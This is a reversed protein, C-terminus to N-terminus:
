AAPPPPAKTPDQNTPNVAPNQPNPAGGPVNDPPPAPENEAIQADTLKDLGLVRDRIEEPTVVVGGARQNLGAWATAVAAQDTQTLSTIDPWRVTYDDAPEPLAGADILRDVFTRVLPTGYEDRRSEVRENWNEKDQTSALEGRESGLLIRQPIGTAGSILSMIATVQNNFPSVDSGLATVKMGRTAMTRRMQHAMEEAESKLKKITDDDVEMDSEIDWHYGQHVRMWFAESGGGVVKDLDDLRNWVKELRPTGNTRDDLLGDAVHIVRSWHVVFSKEQPTKAGSTQSISTRRVEYTKPLGYRENQPDDEWTLVTVEQPGYPALYLVDDPGSMSPLPTKPDGKAGILLVSFAGLGALIDARLFLTWLGLRRELSNFDEELATINEPDESEVIEAGGGWTANPYATVIRAAIDGRNFRDRYDKITIQRTYGLAQYLDRKGGFTLGAASAIGARAALDSGLARLTGVLGLPGQKKPAASSM